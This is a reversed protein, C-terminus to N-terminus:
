QFEYGKVINLYAVTKLLYMFESIGSKFLQKTMPYVISNFDPITSVVLFNGKVTPNKIGFFKESCYRLLMSYMGLERQYHFFQPDFERALKSTTKLDNVTITNDEKDITFNDLKSKLKFVKADYDPIKIEVDLLITRENASYIEEIIGEPHMLKQIDSNNNISDLCSKLLGVSKEDTYIRTKDSPPNKQEFLFRDRWYPEAKLKFENLRNTTLKDKYYNCKISAVKIDDDNVPKGDSNYLYDAVIGAKATPKFVSDILEFSEPQLFLEHLMTGFAFSSSYSGDDVFGKFFAEAGDKILKGLRSNSIYNSYKESFYEDDSLDELRLTDLLPIIKIQKIVENDIEM